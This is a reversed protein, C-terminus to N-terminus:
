SAEQLKLVTPPYVTVRQRPLTAVEPNVKALLERCTAGNAGYALTELYEPLRKHDPSESVVCAAVTGCSPSRMLYKDSAAKALAEDRTEAGVFVYTSVHVEFLKM